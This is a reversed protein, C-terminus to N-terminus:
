EKGDPCVIEDTVAEISRDTLLLNPYMDIGTAIRM